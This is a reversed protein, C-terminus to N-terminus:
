LAQFSLVFEYLFAANSMTISWVAACLLTKSDVPIWSITLCTVSTLKKKDKEFLKYLTVVCCNKGVTLSSRSLGEGHLAVFIFNFCGSFCWSRLKFAAFVFAYYWPRHSLQEIQYFLLWIQLLFLECDITRVKLYVFFFDVIKEVFAM